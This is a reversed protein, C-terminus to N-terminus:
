SVSMSTPSTSASRPARGAADSPSTSSGRTTGSRSRAAATWRTPASGSTHEPWPIAPVPRTWPTSPRNRRSSAAPGTPREENYALVFRDVQRQLEPLSRAPKQKALYRKLTQHFREIKGCTQPHYPRSHKMVIGLERLLAEFATTGKRPGGNFIAGNDTLVSAPYGWAAAAEEFTDVVHHTKTIPLVKAAVIVRSHDDIFDLIEVDRGSRLQWHTVDGQWCENPLAAEFRILSSAPRKKPEPDIFGRRSLVRWITSVSPCDSRLKSLHWHITRAGGDFGADVLDKRLRVIEDELDVPTRNPRTHPRRSRPGLAEYGGERYRVLQVSVWTKSVGHARAVERVGRGELVVADVVYRALVM